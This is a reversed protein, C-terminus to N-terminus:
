EEYIDDEIEDPVYNLVIEVPGGNNGSHEHQATDPWHDRNRNKLYFKIANVDGGVAKDYLANAVNAPGRHRGRKIAEELEPYEKQKNYFTTESIRLVTIIQLNSLGRTALEECEDIIEQTIEYPKRM